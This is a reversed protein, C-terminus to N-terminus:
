ESFKKWRARADRDIKGCVLACLEFLCPDAITYRIFNGERKRTLLRAGHLVGLHKSVNGQKLGTADVLKGVTLPGAMLAKVIQLRAPESLTRFLLAAEEIQAETMQLNKKAQM